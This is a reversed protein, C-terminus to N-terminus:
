KQQMLKRETNGVSPGADELMQQCWVALSHLVNPCVCVCVCVCLSSLTVSSARRIGAMVARLRWDLQVLAEKTIM